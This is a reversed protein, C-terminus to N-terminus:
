RTYPCFLMCLFGSSFYVKLECQFFVKRPFNPSYNKVTVCVTGKVKVPQECFRYTFLFVWVRVVQRLQPDIHMAFTCVLIWYIKVLVYLHDIGAYSVGLIEFIYLLELIKNSIYSIHIPQLLVWAGLSCWAFSWELMYSVTLV